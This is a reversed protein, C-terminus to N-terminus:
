DAQERNYYFKIEGTRVAEDYIDRKVNQLFEAKRSNVLLEKIESEALDLPKIEGAPLYDEINVFYIAASDSLEFMNKRAARKALEEETVSMKSALISLPKWADYFYEYVLANTLSYKELKELDDPEVSKCWRRVADLKPAKKSVKLMLGKAMPEEMKFMMKNAEYFSFIEEQTIEKDLQQDVLKEQYLNLLLSKKYNEILRIVEKSSAVNHKARKYLAMDELWHEVYEKIFVASDKVSKGSSLLQVVDEKYLFDNGIGALPTKGGHDIEDNCSLIAIAVFVISFMRFIVCESNM